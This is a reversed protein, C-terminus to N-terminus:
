QFPAPYSAAGVLEGEAPAPAKEGEAQPAPANEGESVVVPAPAPTSAFSRMMRRAEEKAGPDGVEGAPTPARWTPEPPGAGLLIPPLLSRLLTNPGFQVTYQVAYLMMALRTDNPMKLFMSLAFQLRANWSEHYQNNPLGPWGALFGSWVAQDIAFFATFFGRLSSVPQRMLFDGGYAQFDRQGRTKRSWMSAYAAASIRDPPHNQRLGQGVAEALDTSAAMMRCAHYGTSPHVMNAAGGFGIVRQSSDPLEGGMPIYCFEEEEVELVKVGHYELRRLGRKKCEQFSLRRDGKGVLSTEEWFVNFTGDANESLPMVYMFTPRDMADKKWVEDGDFHDTRYDFLTMAKANYPGLSDVRALFGYAIQFGTPIEKDVGRAYYPQEKGVLRSELGTADIVVKCRLSSGDELTLTSGEGDHALNKDFLNPAIRTASLKSPIIIGEAKKYREKLLAQLKVRDVRVYARPLTDRTEMPVDNSGGFFTDTIEWETTTCDRLEPLKMRTTLAQWEDQWEGYNPYWTSAKDGNPDVIAVKCNQQEQLLWSIVMGAPGGGIVAVDVDYNASMSVKCTSAHSARSSVSLPLFGAVPVTAGFAALLCVLQGASLLM